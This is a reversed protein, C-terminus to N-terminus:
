QRGHGRSNSSDTPRLKVYFNFMVSESMVNPASCERKGLNRLFEYKRLVSNMDSSINQRDTKQTIISISSITKKLSAVHPLIILCRRGRVRLMDMCLSKSM